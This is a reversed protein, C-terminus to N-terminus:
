KQGLEKFDAIIMVGKVFNYVSSKNGFFTM